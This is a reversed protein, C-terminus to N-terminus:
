LQRGLDSPEPAPDVFHQNRVVSPSVIRTFLDGPLVADGRHSADEAVAEEISGRRRGTKATMRAPPDPVRRQGMARAARGFCNRGRKTPFLRKRNDYSRIAGM